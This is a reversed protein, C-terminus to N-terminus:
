DNANAKDVGNADDQPDQSINDLKPYVLPM